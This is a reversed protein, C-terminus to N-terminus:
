NKRLSVVVSTNEIKKLCLYDAVHKAYKGFLDEVITGGFHSALMPETIAKLTNAVINASKWEDMGFNDGDIVDWNDDFVETRELSWSKEDEIIGKVEEKHPKYLPFNFSGVDEESILGQM